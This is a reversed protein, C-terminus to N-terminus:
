GLGFVREANAHLWKDLVAPKLPLSRVEELVKSIHM